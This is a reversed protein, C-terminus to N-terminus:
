PRYWIFSYYAVDGNEKVTAIIFKKRVSASLRGTRAIDLPDIGQGRPIVHILFPSHDIGPGYEYVGFDTGFKLGPRVVYGSDRLESYVVFRDRFGDLWESGLKLLDEVSLISEDDHRRVRLRKHKTLYACEILSLELPKDFVSSKPKRIGVPQGFYDKDYLRMGQKVDWVIGRDGVLRADAVPSNESM